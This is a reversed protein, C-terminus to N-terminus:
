VENCCEAVSGGLEQYLNLYARTVAGQDFHTEVFARAKEGMSFRAWDDKILKVTQATLADLNRDPVLYGTRGDQVAERVGPVDFAVTPLGMAAAELVVRPVGERYSPFLLLDGEELLGHISELRGRYEIQTQSQFWDEDVADPHNPDPEGALIFRTEPLEEQVRRAVDAFFRIGKQNILRAALVVKKAAQERGRRDVFPYRHLDVGSGPVLRTKDAKVWGNRVFLDQDDRNQFVVADARRLALQYARGIGRALVPSEIFAHGLGTITGVVVPADAKRRFTALCAAIVPKANFAQILDPQYKAVLKRLRFLIFLDKSLNPGGRAFGASEVIAGMRTLDEASDDLSVVVVVRWGASLLADILPRRSSAVAYARNAVILATKSM